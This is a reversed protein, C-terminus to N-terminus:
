RNEYDAEAKACGAMFGLEYAKCKLSDALLILRVVDDSPLEGCLDLCVKKIKEVTLSEM